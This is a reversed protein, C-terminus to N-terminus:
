GQKLPFCRAPNGVAVHNAPVDQTVVAGAGVLVRDGITVGKLVMARAGVFVGRGIKIPAAHAAGDDSWGWDGVPGHFDCDLVLAGSGFITGEGVEISRSACLTTSSMGVNRELRILAGPALARLQCPQTNSLPAARVASALRVGDGLVIRAGRAIRFRPRGALLCHGQLEVGRLRAELLWLRSVGIRVQSVLTGLWSALTQQSM